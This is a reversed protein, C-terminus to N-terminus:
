PDDEGEGGARRERPFLGEVEGRYTPSGSLIDSFQTLPQGVRIGGPASRIERITTEHQGYRKKLVSICRRVEGEAEFHRLLVVTDALYSSDVKSTELGRLGGRDAVILFTLVGQGALYSLLEHLRSMVLTDDALAHLYGTISDLVVVRAGEEEVLWRIDETFEGWSIGDVEMERIVVRGEEVHRPLDMGLTESRHLYTARREDFCYIVARDGRDGAGGVYLSALTSKGTGTSGVILCSTGQELGGGLLADLEANGSEVVEWDPAEKGQAPELRPYVELGGTRIRFDHLGGAFDAGRVKTVELKRDPHGFSPTEMSLRVVGHVITGLSAAREMPGDSINVIGTCGHRYLQGQLRVVERRLQAPNDVLVGLESVSDFVLRRPRHEEVARSITDAVHHFELDASSFFTQDAPAAERAEETLEVVQIGDLSWGHSRTLEDLESVSQLLTVYLVPEGRRVGELLFQFSLTTKGTGPGGLLLCLRNETLGGRLVRDLGPIGTATRPIPEPSPMLTSWERNAHASSLDGGTCASPAGAQAWTEGRSGVGRPGSPFVLGQLFRDVSPSTPRM